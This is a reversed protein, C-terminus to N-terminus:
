SRPVALEIDVQADAASAENFISRVTYEFRDDLVQSEMMATLVRDSAPNAWATLKVTYDVSALPVTVRYSGTGLRQSAFGAPLNIGAGTGLVTFRLLQRASAIREAAAAFSPAILESVLPAVIPSLDPLAALVVGLQVDAYIRELSDDLATVQYRGPAAYFRGFGADTRFPNNKETIGDVDAYIPVLALTYADVVRVFANPRLRGLEDVITKQWVYM